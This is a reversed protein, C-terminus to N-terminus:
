KEILVGRETTPCITYLRKGNYNDRVYITHRKGCHECKFTMKPM